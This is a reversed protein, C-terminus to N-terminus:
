ACMPVGHECWCGGTGEFYKQDHKEHGTMDIVRNYGSARLVQPAPPCRVGVCCLMPLDTPLVTFVSLWTCVSACTFRIVRFLASQGPGAGM